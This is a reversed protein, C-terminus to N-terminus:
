VEEVRGLELGLSRVRAKEAEEYDEPQQPQLPCSKSGQGRIRAESEIVELKKGVTFKVLYHVNLRFVMVQPVGPMLPKYSLISRKYGPEVKTVLGWADENIGFLLGCVCRPCSM